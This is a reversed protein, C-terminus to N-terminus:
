QREIDHNHQARPKIRSLGGDTVDELTISAVYMGECSRLKKKVLKGEICIEDMERM